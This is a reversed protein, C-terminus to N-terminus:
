RGQEDRVTDDPILLDNRDSAAQAVLSSVVYCVGDQPEPLGQVEGFVTRTIPVRAAGGDPLEIELEGVVERNTACRAVVGSPPIAITSSDQLVITIEHPTLNILKAM